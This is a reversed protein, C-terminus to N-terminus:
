RSLGGARRWRTFPCRGSAAHGLGDAAPFDVGVPFWRGRFDPRGPWGRLSSRPLGRATPAAGAGSLRLLRVGASVRPRIM